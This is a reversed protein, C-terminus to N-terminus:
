GGLWSVPRSSGDVVSSTQAWVQGEYELKLQLWADMGEGKSVLQAIGLAKGDLKVVFVAYLQRSITQVDHELTTNGITHASQSAGDLQSECGVLESWLEFKLVWQPSQEDEGSYPVLKFEGSTDIVSAAM